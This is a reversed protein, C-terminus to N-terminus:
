KIVELFKSGFASTLDSKLKDYIETSDYIGLNDWDCMDIDSNDILINSLVWDGHAFPKTSSINDLCFNYITLIFDKTHAFESAPTGPLISLDIWMCSEDIGHNIVYGPKIKELMNVHDNLWAIDQYLWIKRYRDLYKWTQRNKEKNFKVLEM